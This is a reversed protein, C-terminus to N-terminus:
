YRIVGEFVLARGCWYYFRVLDQDCVGLVVGNWVNLSSLCVAPMAMITYKSLM